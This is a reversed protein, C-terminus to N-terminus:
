RGRMLKLLAVTTSDDKDFELAGQAAEGLIKDILKKKKKLLSLVHHDITKPEDGPREALLHYALVGKHPSGIRVMRGLIQVYEGWSWPLDYFITAAAQQLNIAESGASTIFVVRVDSKADQFQQQAEFRKKDNEKGTVRVSKIGNRKLIEQLRGVISEFRTYVIVKEQEIEGTLLDVLAEEKAFLAGVKIKEDEFALGTAITAGEEFKLLALSDVIRQCYILSVLTKHEEFDRVEGDGLELVGSLAEEYKADEAASLQCLIERSTVVPLENSIMHKKRGIFFPDIKARFEELNRYGLIMPILRGGRNEMKYSCFTDLFSQKTGFVDPKIAKYIGFGEELNNKLLTATLGYARGARDCLYRVTEWTKTKMSKFATAEDAVVVLRPGLRSTVEDLLGPKVPQKSSKGGEKPPQFGGHNWDRVLIAYNMILVTKGKSEAWQKYTRTRADVSSEGKQQSEGVVIPTVGNTFKRVESAWQRLASKPAIVVPKLDPDKDWMYCLAAITQVTKGTGTDDGLVMRKMAMLHYTGQVQYYRLKFPHKEGDLGVIEDRLLATPKLSVTTSARVKKLTEYIKQLEPTLGKAEAVRKPPM